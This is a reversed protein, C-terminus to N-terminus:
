SLTSLYPLKYRVTQRNYPQGPVQNNASKGNALIVYTEGTDLTIPCTGSSILLSHWQKIKNVVMNMRQGTQDIHRHMDITIGVYLTGECTKEDSQDGFVPIVFYDVQVEQDFRYERAIYAQHNWVLFGQLKNTSYGLKYDTPDEFLELAPEQLLGLRLRTLYDKEINYAM